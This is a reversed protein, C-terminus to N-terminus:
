LFPIKTERQKLIQAHFLGTKVTQIHNKQFVSCASFLIINTYNQVYSHTSFTKDHWCARTKEAQM